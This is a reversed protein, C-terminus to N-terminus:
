DIVADPVKKGEAEVVSTIIQRVPDVGLSKFDICACRGRIATIVKEPNSTTMLFYVHSPCKELARLFAQQAFGAKSWAQIEELLWIRCPGGWPAIKVQVEIDRICDTPKAVSGCNIEIFDHDSCQLKEKLIFATTSKGSGTPGQLLVAHPFADRKLMDLLAKIAKEQGLVEKFRKPRHKRYLETAKSDDM